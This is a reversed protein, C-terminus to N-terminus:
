IRSSYKRRACIGSGCSACWVNGASDVTIGDPSCRAFVRRDSIAGSEADYDFVYICGSDTVALYLKDGFIRVGNPTPTLDDLLLNFSGNPDLRRLRGNKGRKEGDFYNDALIGCFIRGRSDVLCDNFLSGGFKRYLEPKEGPLWKWITGDFGFLLMTEDITFAMSEVGGIGPTFREFDSPAGGFGKRYINGYFDRWYLCQQAKNWIPSETM